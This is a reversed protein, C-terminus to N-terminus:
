ADKMVSIYTASPNAAFIDQSNAADLMKQWYAAQIDYISMKAVHEKRRMELLENAHNDNSVRASHGPVLRRRKPGIMYPKSKPTDLKLIDRGEVKEEAVVAIEDDHFGNDCDFENALPQMTEALTNVVKTAIGSLQAVIPGGGTKYLERKHQAHEQKSRTKLNDWAKTLQAPERKNSITANANFVNTIDQWAKKKEGIVLTSKSRNNIIDKFKEVSETLIDLEALTFVVRKAKVPKLNVEDM